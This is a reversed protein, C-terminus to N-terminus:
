VVPVVFEFIQLRCASDSCPPLGRRAPIVLNVAVAGLALVGCPYYDGCGTNIWRVEICVVTITLSLKLVLTVGCQCVHMAVVMLWFWYRACLCGGVVVGPSERRSCVGRLFAKSCGCALSALSWCIQMGIYWGGSILMILALVGFMEQEGTNGTFTYNM